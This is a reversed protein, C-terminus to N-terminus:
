KAFRAGMQRYEALRGRLGDLGETIKEGPHWRSVVRDGAEGGTV